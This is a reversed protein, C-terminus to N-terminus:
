NSWIAGFFRVCPLHYDRRLLYFCFFFNTSTVPNSGAVGQKCLLHEGLQAVRGSCRSAKIKFCKATQRFRLLTVPRLGCRSEFRLSLNTRLGSQNVGQQPLALNKKGRFPLM